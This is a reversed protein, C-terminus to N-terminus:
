GFCIPCRSRVRRSFQQSLMVTLHSGREGRKIARELEKIADDKSTVAHACSNLRSVFGAGSYTSSVIVILRPLYDRM